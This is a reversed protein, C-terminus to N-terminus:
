EKITAPFQNPPYYKDDMGSAWWKCVKCEQSNQSSDREHGSDYCLHPVYKRCNHCYREDNYYGSVSVSKRTTSNSCPQLTAWPAYQRKLFTAVAQFVSEGVIGIKMGSREIMDLADHMCKAANGYIKRYGTIIEDQERVLKCLESVIDCITNYDPGCGDRIFLKEVEDLTREKDEYVQVLEKTKIKIDM